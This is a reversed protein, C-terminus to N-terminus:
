KSGEATATAAAAGASNIREINPSDWGGTIRYYARTLGNLPQKFVQTFLLVAAGVVPGGALAGAIPFTNSISGTVVATQDFDKNKLGVRGIVGIEAAPGKILVDETYASGGRLDFTGRATDFALGKDTLDSFDFLLRRPLAALSALGLVRGAGPKVGLLQGKELSTQVRGTAEQLSEETPAGVWRLDFDMQGSKASIVDAFALQSLTAQVDTSKIAGTIRGTGAEKGRWEGQADIKFTAGSANLHDLTVGDDHKVLTAQVTGFNRGDWIFDAASFHMAPVSRPSAYRQADAGAAPASESGTSAEGIAVAKEAPAAETGAPAEGINVRDFQLEWPDGSGAAAPIGISGALNPGDVGLRWRDAGVAIDLSVTHFTFGIFDIRGIDLKATRLYYSLPRGGHEPNIARLWGNLDVRGIKGGINVIQSDSFTPEVDGFGVAARSLRESGDKPDADLTFVARLIPGLGLNVLTGGGSPWQVDLWSPLAAGSPKALPQPLGVDLAALSATVHVSRERAPEPALKILAHWDSQGHIPANSPLGLAAVLAEGTLSGRVDLQSRTQPRARPARALARFTGGLLRGHFDARTLAAGDVEFDGAMETATLPLGPRTLTVGDLRGQVLVRRRSFEKLPLYLDVVSRLPGQAEVGSFAKGAMADLPTARLFELAGAADGAAVAHVIVEGSKFDAIRATGSQLRVRGSGGHLLEAVLGANLFEATGALDELPPWGAQYSLTLNELNARARFVGGGDRYPFGRLPGQLAVDAHSMRGSVLAADLWELTRPPLVARPLYDRTRAVNGDDVQSVLTLLPSSGDAPLRLAMQASVRADANAAEVKPSAILLADASRQWYFTAGATDVQVPNPWQHPWAIQGARMDIVFHGGSQTGAIEGSLGRLGPVTGVSAFGADRFRANVLMEWPDGVRARRLDLRADAWEGTPAIASLRERLDAQPLLGMLPLLSDARLYSADAHLELLGDQAARWNVDFQALPDKRGARLTSMRRGKLTWRDAEHTLSVLGSIDDFKAESGEAVQTVVDHATFDLYAREIDAGTGRASFEFDGRGAALNNLYEPLLLRWGPFEIARPQLVLSWALTPLDGLGQARASFKLTGGLGDPLRANMAVGIRDSQRQLDINVQTLVLEPLSANWRQVSLRGNRISVNGAPLDDLTLAAVRNGEGRLEIESALAFSHPGLRTISIDPSDLLVRGGLLKGSHLLQRFDAGIRGAAARALVRQDDKSRLELREFYLEPGYWRLSPAVRAFRIHLGTQQHVWARIQDQYAPVRDLALKVALMAILVLGFLGAVTYGLVRVFKRLRM